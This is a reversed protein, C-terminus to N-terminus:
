ISETSKKLGVAVEDDNSDKKDYFDVDNARRSIIYDVLFALFM